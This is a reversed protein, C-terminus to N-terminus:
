GAALRLWMAIARRIVELRRVLPHVPVAPQWAGSEAIDAIFWAQQSRDTLVAWVEQTTPGRPQFRSVTFLLARENPSLTQYPLWIHQQAPVHLVTEGDVTYDLAVEDHELLSGLPGIRGPVRRQEEETANRRAGTTTDWAQQPRYSGSEPYIYPTDRLLLDTNSIWGDISWGFESVCSTDGGIAAACAIGAGECGSSESFSIRQGDPSVSGVRGIFRGSPSAQALISREQTVVDISLIQHDFPPSPCVNRSKEIGDVALLHRSDAWEVVWMDRGNDPEVVRTSWRLTDFIHIRLEMFPEDDDDPRPTYRRFALFRGDPSWVPSGYTTGRFEDTGDTTINWRRGTADTLAINNDLTVMAILGPIAPREGVYSVLEPEPPATARLYKEISWGYGVLHWWTDPDGFGARDVRDVRARTGDPLCARIPARLESEWRANLCDGAGTVEVESGIQIPEQAATPSPSGGSLMAICLAVAITALPAPPRM